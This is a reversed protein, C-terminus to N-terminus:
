GRSDMEMKVAALTGLIDFCIVILLQWHLEVFSSYSFGICSALSQAFKYIGFASAAQDRFTGGLISQVQFIRLLIYLVHYEKSPDHLM